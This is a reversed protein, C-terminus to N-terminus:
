EEAPMTGEPTASFPKSGLQDPGNSPPSDGADQEAATDAASAAAGDEDQMAHM